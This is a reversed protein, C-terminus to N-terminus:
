KKQADKARQLYKSDLEARPRKKPKKDPFLDQKVIQMANYVLEPDEETMKVFDAASWGYHEKVASVVETIEALPNRRSYGEDVYGEGVISGDDNYQLGLLEDLKHEKVFKQIVEPHESVIIPQDYQVPEDKKLPKGDKDKRPGDLYHRYAEGGKEIIMGAEYIGPLNFPNAFNIVELISQETKDSTIQRTDIGAALGQLAAGSARVMEGPQGDLQKGARRFPEGTVSNVINKVAPHNEAFEMYSKEAQDYMRYGAENLAAPIAALQNEVTSTQNVNNVLQRQKKDFRQAAEGNLPVM